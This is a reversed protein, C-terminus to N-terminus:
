PQGLAGRGRATVEFLRARDTYTSRVLAQRELRALQRGAALALGVESSPHGRYARLGVERATAGELAPREDELAALAALVGRLAPTVHVIM